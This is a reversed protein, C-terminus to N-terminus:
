QWDKGLQDILQNAFIPSMVGKDKARHLLKRLSQRIQEKEDLSRLVFSASLHMRHRVIFSDTETTVVSDRVSIREVVGKTNENITFEDGVTFTFATGHADRFSISHIIQSTYGGPEFPWLSRLFTLIKSRVSNLTM